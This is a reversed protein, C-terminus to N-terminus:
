RNACVGYVRLQFTSRTTESLRLTVRWTDATSPFSSVANLMLGATPSDYGGGIVNKGVPCTVTMTVSQSPDATVTTMGTFVTQLGSVGPLGQPGQPGMPGMVGQPGTAGADGKPGAPGQPGVAGADGAPGAPGQAGTDGKPGAAGTDGKPGAAGTDGKPGAAGTDGKPGAEGPAGKPGAPGIPGAPGAPGQGPTQVVMNFYGRDKEGPGRVVTLLHTGDPVGGPLFVVLQNDTASIVTMQFTECWVQPPQAGFGLGQITLTQNARDVATSLVVLQESNPIPTSAATIARKEAYTATTGLIVFLLATMLTRNSLRM